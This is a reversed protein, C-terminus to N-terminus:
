SMNLRRLDFERRAISGVQESIPVVFNDVEDVPPGKRRTLVTDPGDWLYLPDASSKEHIDQLDECFQHVYARSNVSAVLPHRTVLDMLDRLAPAAALDGSLEQNIWKKVVPHLIPNRNFDQNWFCDHNPWATRERDFREQGASGRLLWIVFELVVCGLSWSDYKRSITPPHYLEIEPPEYRLTGNKNTTLFGQAQRQRTEVAHFKAIGVDAIVLPGLKSDGGGGFVLINEPKFDGHRTGEAHLKDLGDTLGRIQDWAWCRVQQNMSGTHRKWLSRLNGGPAWPFLFCRNDGMEYASIAEILHPHKLKRMIKLTQTEKQFFKSLEQETTTAGSINLQKVAVEHILM